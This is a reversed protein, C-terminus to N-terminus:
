RCFSFLGDTFSTPQAAQRVIRSHSGAGAEPFFMRLVKATLKLQLARRRFLHNPRRTCDPQHFFVILIRLSVSLRPSTSTGASLSQPACVWRESSCKLM